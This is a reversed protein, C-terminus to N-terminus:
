DNTLRFELAVRYGQPGPAMELVGGLQEASALMIRRGLGSQPTEAGGTGVGDDVCELRYVGDGGRAGSLAIRGAREDPFGHKCANSIMENVLVGLASARRAELDLPDVHSTIDVGAPAIHRLHSIVRNLYPVIEMPAESEKARYLDDHLAVMVEIRSEVAMLAERTEGEARRAAMRTMAAVNALSNKVRHDVERRMAEQARLAEHLELYQMVQNSLIRLARRETDGLRRPRRDLVCLTGLAIGSRTVIQAGAYFLLPDDADTVLPNDATRMDLRTDPIELIDGQLIAHSCISSELPTGTLDLGCAAEFRQDDARVISVLSIPCQCIQAALEAISDFEGAHSDTGLEYRDIAALRAKQDLSIPALM